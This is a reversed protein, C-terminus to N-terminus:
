LCSAMAKLLEDIVPPKKVIGAPHLDALKAMVDDSEGTLFIVPIGQAGPLKRIEALTKAGDWDPMLYDLLIVDPHKKQLYRLGREGGPAMAVQYREELIAKLNRLMMPSDDIILVTKKGASVADAPTEEPVPTGDADQGASADSEGPWADALRETLSDWEELFVPHVRDIVDLRSDRAAYELVRALSAVTVAGIMAASNKMSHVLVHYQKRAEERDGAGSLERYWRALGAADTGAQLRFDRIMEAILATGGLHRLADEYDVGEVVPLMTIDAAEGINGSSGEAPVYGRSGPPAKEVLDAPLIERLLEELREPRIPKGLFGDFGEREYMERAGAVMNATLAIVPTGRCKYMDAERLRRLTEIGDLDPMMHDLLIADYHKKKVCEICEYGGAAEDVQVQTDRLLSRAVKRNMSNDDVLLVQARPAIFSVDYCFAESQRAIREELRGVPTEDVIPQLIDFYFESGEGYTSKLQLASGMLSLLQVTISMGLGTGEIHRNKEQDLRTYQEFLKKQDEERIGMGTDKVSVHLRYSDGERRGSVAFTVSGKETYKVANTLLNVMIQRIRVDDGLLRSPIDEAFDFVFALNKQRTQFVLMNSVDHLMSSVDYEVPILEMRGSEVKSLDLIDNITSLLAEAANKIDFAYARINEDRGDRLIMEDMGIVANIPTRIEHSMKALFESKANNAVDARIKEEELLTMTRTLKLYDPTEIVFLMTMAAISCMYSTLLTKPFYVAQLFFGSVILIMFVWIAIKQRREMKGRYSWLLITSMLGIIIQIVYCTFYIPGHIYTGQSDFTFVWGMRINLTMLILYTIFMVNNIRMYTGSVRNKVFSHLYRSFSWFSGATTYFYVTNAAINIWPPILHGYDIMRGTIVDMIESVLIWTVWQRYRRNSESANPYEIHLYLLLIGLFGTAAVEFYINYM